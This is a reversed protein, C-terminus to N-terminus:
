ARSLSSYVAPRCRRRSPRRRCRSRSGTTPMSWRWMLCCCRRSTRDTPLFVASTWRATRSSGGARIRLVPTISGDPFSRAHSPRSHRGSITVPKPDGDVTFWDVDGGAHDRARLGAGAAEFAATYELESSSWRDPAPSPVEAWIAHGALVGSVFVARGDVADALNEYPAPLRGLRYRARAAPSLLPEAARGLRVRRGITWWGGPEAELLAEAPIVTPDLDPRSRDYTLPVHQPASIVAVPTSADEGQLEGLHWQRTIFWVPDAVRARLGEDTDTRGPELVLYQPSSM